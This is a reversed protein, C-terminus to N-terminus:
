KIGNNLLDEITQDLLLREAIEKYKSDAVEETLNEIGTAEICSYYTGDLKKKLKSLPCKKCINKNSWCCNGEEQIIKELIQKSDMYDNYM